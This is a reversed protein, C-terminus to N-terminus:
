GVRRWSRFWRGYFQRAELEFRMEMGSITIALRKEAIEEDLLDNPNIAECCCREGQPTVIPDLYVISLLGEIRAPESPRADDLSRAAALPGVIMKQVVM